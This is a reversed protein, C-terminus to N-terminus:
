NSDNQTKLNLTHEDSWIIGSRYKQTERLKFCTVDRTLPVIECYYHKIYM